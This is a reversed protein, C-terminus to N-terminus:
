LGVYDLAPQGGEMYCYFTYVHNIQICLHGNHYSAGNIFTGAERIGNVKYDAEVVLRGNSISHKLKMWFSYKDPESGTYEQEFYDRHNNTVDLNVKHSEDEDIKYYSLLTLTEGNYTAEIVYETTIITDKESTRSVSVIDQKTSRGGTGANIYIANQYIMMANSSGDGYIGQLDYLVEELYILDGILIAGDDKFMPVQVTSGSPMTIIASVSIYSDTASVSFSSAEVDRVLGTGEANYCDLTLKGDDKFRIYEKGFQGDYVYNGRLSQFISMPFYYNVYQFQSNYITYSNESYIAYYKEGGATFSFALTFVGTSTNRLFELNYSVKTGDIKLEYEDYELTHTGDNTFLGECDTLYNARVVSVENNQRVLVYGFYEDNLDSDTKYAYPIFYNNDFTLVIGYESHYAFNGQIPTASGITIKYDDSITISVEDKPNIFTDVFLADLTRTNYMNGSFNGYEVLAVDENGKAVKVKGLSSDTFTLVARGDNAVLKYNSIPNDNWAYTLGTYNGRRDIGNYYMSISNSLDGLVFKLPKPAPVLATCPFTDEDYWTLMSAFNKTVGGKTFEYKGPITTVTTKETGVTFEYVLGNETRKAEYVANQGDVKVNTLVGSASVTYSNAHRTGDGDVMDTLFMSSDAYFYDKTVGSSSVYDLNVTNMPAMFYTNFFQHDYMDLLNAVKYVLNGNKNSQLYFGPVLLGMERGFTGNYYLAEEYGVFKDSLDKRITNGYLYVYNHQDFYGIGNYAGAFEPAQPSFSSKVEWKENKKEQLEIVKFESSSFIVRYNSDNRAAGYYVVVVTETITRKIDEVIVKEYTITEEKIETPYLKKEGEGTVYTAYDKTIDLSGEHSVLGSLLMYSYDEESFNYSQKQCGALASLALVAIPLLCRKKMTIRGKM